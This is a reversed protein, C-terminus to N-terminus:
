LKKYTTKTQIEKKSNASVSYNSLQFLNRLIEYILPQFDSAVRVILSSFSDANAQFDIIKKGHAISQRISNLEKYEDSARLNCVLKTIQDNLSSNNVAEIANKFYKKDLALNYRNNLYVGLKDCIQYAIIVSRRTFFSFDDYELGSYNKDVNKDNIYIYYLCKQLEQYKFGIDIINIEEMKLAGANMCLHSMENVMEYIEINTKNMGQILQKRDDLLIPSYNLVLNKISKGAVGTQDSLVGCIEGIFLVMKSIDLLKSIQQLEGEYFPDAAHEVRHRWNIETEMQKKLKHGINKGLINDINEIAIRITCIYERYFSTYPLFSNRNGNLCKCSVDIYDLVKVLHVVDEIIPKIVEYDSRSTLSNIFSVHNKITARNKLLCKQINDYDNKMRIDFEIQKNVNEGQM